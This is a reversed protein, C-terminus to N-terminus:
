GLRGLLAAVATEVRLIRTGLSVPLCGAAALLEVEFPILGGEPGIVLTSAGVRQRPCPADAAPHAVLATSSGIIGPLEDEVFPRFRKHLTIHPLVTDIAQELGLQCTTALTEPALWPSSWFSKDVRYSNIFCIRKVGLSTADVLIRKLMKPRPLAIVLTVPLVAPPPETLTVRLLAEDTNIRLIEAAGLKGNIAGVRLRDGAVFRQVDHLHALRTGGIRATGDAAIEGADLL